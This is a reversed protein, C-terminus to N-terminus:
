ESEKLVRNMRRIWETKPDELLRKMESQVLGILEIRSSNGRMSITHTIEMYDAKVYSVEITPGLTQPVYIRFVKDERRDFLNANCVRLQYDVWKKM